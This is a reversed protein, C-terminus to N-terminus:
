DILGEERARIETQIRVNKGEEPYVGLADQIKSWYHRVTRQAINMEEAIVRDQLGRQFALELVTLWEPKLELGSRMEPPLYNLGKLAWDFKTLMDEMSQSKDAITFGGQHALISPKLRVLAQGHASQVMINLTPFREMLITLLQIGVEVRARSFSDVLATEPISLDVIMADPIDAEVLDLAQNATPVQLIEAEPYRHQVVRATSDLVIEHDDVIVFRLPKPNNYGM